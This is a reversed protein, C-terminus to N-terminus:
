DQSRGRITYMITVPIIQKKMIKTQFYKRKIEPTFYNVEGLSMYVWKKHLDVRYCLNLKFIVTSLHHDIFQDKVQTVRDSINTLSPKCPMPYADHTHCSWIAM